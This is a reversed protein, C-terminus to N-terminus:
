QQTGGWSIMGGMMAEAQAIAGARDTAQRATVAELTPMTAPAIAAPADSKASAAVDWRSWDTAASSPAQVSTPSAAGEQGFIALGSAAVVRSLGSDTVNMALAAYAADDGYLTGSVNVFCSISCTDGTSTVTGISNAFSGGFTFGASSVVLNIDSSAPDAAGGNTSISWSRGGVAMTLDYGVLNGAGFAIALDGTLTGPASGANDTASTGGILEYAVTGGPLSTTVEGAMVHYGGNAGVSFDLNGVPSTTQVTGNTWRAWAVEGLDTAEVITTDNSSVTGVLSSMGTIQGDVFDVSGGFGTNLSGDLFAYYVQNDRTGTFGTGGGTGGTGGGTNGDTNFAGVPGLAFTGFVRLASLEGISYALGISPDSSGDGYFAGRLDVRCTASDCISGTGSIELGGTGNSNVLGFINNASVSLGNQAAEDLGGPTTVNYSSGDASVTFDLGLKAETGYAVVARAANLTGTAGNTLTPATSGVLEYEILGSTPLADPNSGSFIHLGANGLTINEEANIQGGITGNRWRGWALNGDATSGTDVLEADGLQPSLAEAVFLGIPAGTTDDYTVDTFRRDYIERGNELALFTVAQDSLVPDNGGGDGDVAGFIAAGLINVADASNSLNFDSATYQTGFQSAQADPIQVQFVIQGSFGSGRSGPASVNFYGLNGSGESPLFIAQGDGAVGGDTAFSYTFDAFGISGEIAFAPSTGFIIAADAAFTGPAQSGDILTPSTAALLEYEVRGTPYDAPGTFGNALLYHFSQNATLDYGFLEGRGNSRQYTGNTWRGILLDENGSIDVTQATGRDAFIFNQSAFVYQELGGNEDLIADYPGPGLLRIDRVYADDIPDRGDDAWSGAGIIGTGQPTFGGTYVLTPNNGSGPNGGGNGGGMGPLGDFLDPDNGALLFDFYEIFFDNLDGFGALGGQAATLAALYAQITAQDLETYESPLNGAELFAFYANLAAVYDLYVPLGTFGDPAGGSALFAFYASLLAVNEGLLDDVQGSQEVASFFERLAALDTETFDSPLGNESLFAAYANLAAAFAPFDPPVPLGAFNDPNGGDSLFAFYAEYFDALDGLFLQTAGAQQLAAIYQAIVEQSLPTYASPIGGNELFAFYAALEAQYGAFVNAPLGAFADIDGGARLFALYDAFFQAQDNDLNALLGTNSLVELYARVTAQDLAAYDSPSQGSALFAFYDALATQFQAAFAIGGNDIFAAILAQDAASLQVLLGSQQLFAISAALAEDSAGTFESPVGGARLFAFYAATLDTFSAAFLDRDQGSAIFALYADVLARDQAGLATLAGTRNLFALYADIDAATAVGSSFGSPVGGARLLELYGLTFASYASLFDAGSAGSALFRLYSRIIDAQAANFPTGGYAGELDAAVAVLLALDGSPFREISPNAVAAEVRRGADIIDSSAGAAALGDGLTVPIGNLAANVPGADGSITAVEVPETTAGPQRQPANAITRKPGQGAKAGWMDGAKYTKARGNQPGVRVSGTLTHGSASGDEAVSFSAASNASDVRAIIGGPMRVEVASRGAGTVTISGNHLDISGNQNLTYQTGKTISVTAGSTLRIQLLGTTQTTRQGAQVQTASTSFLVDNASAPVSLALVSAGILLVRSTAKSTTSIATM